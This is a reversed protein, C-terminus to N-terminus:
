AAGGAASIHLWRPASARSVCVRALLNVVVWVYVYDYVSECVCPSCVCSLSVHVAWTNLNSGTRNTRENKKRAYHVTAGEDECVRWCLLVAASQCSVHHVCGRHNIIVWKLAVSNCLLFNFLCAMNDTVLHGLELELLQRDLVISQVVSINSRLPLLFFFSKVIAKAPCTFTGHLPPNCFPFLHNGSAADEKGFFFFGDSVSALIASQCSRTLPHRRILPSPPFFCYSTQTYGVHQM